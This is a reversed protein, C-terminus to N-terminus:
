STQGSPYSRAEAPMTKAEILPLRLRIRAGRWPGSLIEVSGGHLRAIERALNLGLGAGSSRPRLRYFPQFVREHEECPIGPGEDQVELSGSAHVLITITGEGGGHDIANRLLNTVAQQVQSPQISVLVSSAAPEFSFEYGASLALPAFDAALHRAFEVLDVVERAGASHDLVQRDLLQQALHSLREIDKLLRTSEPDERLLEARTRLIAIPTRLEHAADTLFRNRQEYGQGLRSLANNFAQVLPGIEAPVDVTPLQVGRNDIDIQKAQSATAVLGALSRRVVAPTAVLTTGGMVIFFPAVFAVIILAIAPGIKMWDIQGTAYRTGDLSLQFVVDVGNTEMRSLITSTLIQVRGAATPRNALIADPRLDHIPFRLFAYDIAWPLGIHGDEYADPVKGERLSKGAQDRVVLWLNPYNQRAWRMDETDRVVLNGSADRSLATAVAEVATENDSLLRPELLFLVFWILGVFAFLTAAQLLILKRVLQWQLSTPRPKKM